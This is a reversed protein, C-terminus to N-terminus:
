YDNKKYLEMMEKATMIKWKDDITYEITIKLQDEEAIDKAYFTPKHIFGKSLSPDYRFTKSIITENDKTKKKQQSM